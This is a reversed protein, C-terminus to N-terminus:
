DGLIFNMIEKIRDNKNDFYLKGILAELGTALRYTVIDAHKTKAGKANRGWKVIDIEEETLFNSNELRELHMRQSKASVYDLSKSQLEGIKTIGKRILYERVYQEYITDGMYAMVLPNDHMHM